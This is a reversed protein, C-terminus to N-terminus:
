GGPKLRRKKEQPKVSSNQKTPLGNAEKELREAHVRLEAAYLRLEAAVRRDTTNAALRLCREIREQVTEVEEVM